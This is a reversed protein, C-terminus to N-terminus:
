GSRGGSTPSPRSWRPPSGMVINQIAIALSFEARGWNLDASIPVLFLGFNQRSGNAILLIVVTGCLVFLPTRWFAKM